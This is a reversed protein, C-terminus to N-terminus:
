HKMLTLGVISDVGMGVAFYLICGGGFVTGM